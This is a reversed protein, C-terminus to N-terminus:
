TAGGTQLTRGTLKLFVDELNPAVPEVEADADIARLRDRLWDESGDRRDTLVRLSSGIEFM